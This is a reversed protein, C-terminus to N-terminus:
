VLIVLMSPTLKLEYESCTTGGECISGEVCNTNDSSCNSKGETYGLASLKLLMIKSVFTCV